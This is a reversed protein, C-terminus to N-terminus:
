HTEGDALAKAIHIMSTDWDKALPDIRMLQCGTEKAILEANKQDFEMQIFAVKAGSSKATKVLLELQAPSPEKGNMEICLQQLGNEAAFYTLAPHYIIFAKTQLPKLLSDVQAQTQDIRQLLKQENARYYAANSPDLAVVAKLINQAILKAGAISNWIHPDQAGHEHHEEAENEGAVEPTALLKMGESLDFVKMNPNNEEIKQMWALEFGISGIRLYADSKSITVMEQPTPEYTEPSQGAPVVCNIQMKDGVIQEVFFCQPQITVSLVPKTERNQKVKGSCAALSLTLLCLMVINLYRKMMNTAFITCVSRLIM